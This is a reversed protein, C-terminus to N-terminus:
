QILLYILGFNLNKNFNEIEFDLKLLMNKIERFMDPDVKDSKNRCKFETISDFVCNKIFELMMSDTELQNYYVHDTNIISYITNDDKSLDIALYPSHPGVNDSYVKIVFATKGNSLTATHSIQPKSMSVVKNVLEKNNKKVTEEDEVLDLDEYTGICEDSDLIDKM